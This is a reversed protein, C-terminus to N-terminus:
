RRPTLKITKKGHEAFIERNVFSEPCFRCQDIVDDLHDIFDQLANIDNPTGPKYSNIVQTEDPSLGLDFKAALEPYLAVPGCKYLGGRIFHYCRGRVYDCVDHAQQADSRHLRAQRQAPDILLWPQQFFNEQKIEVVVGNVDELRWNKRQQALLEPSFQHVTTCEQQIHAPLNHWQDINDCAPWSEDRIADYSTRWNRDFDPLERINHPTRSVAIPSVLWSRVRELMAAERHRNHLGISLSLVGHSARLVEYLDRDDPRLYHGNTLLQARARPWLAHLGQLWDLYDPSTMPEGGLINFADLDLVQSWHGYIEKYDRWAQRGTFNINNFRNCGDCNFNCVNTIYFEVSPLHLRKPEM